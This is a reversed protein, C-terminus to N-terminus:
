KGTPWCPDLHIIPRAISATELITRVPPTAPAFMERNQLRHRSSRGLHLLALSFFDLILTHGFYVSNNLLRKAVSDPTPERQFSPRKKPRLLFMASNKRCPLCPTPGPESQVYAGVTGSTRCQLARPLSCCAVQAPFRDIMDTRRTESSTITSMGASLSSGGPGHSSPM